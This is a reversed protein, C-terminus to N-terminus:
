SKKRKLPMTSCRLLGSLKSTEAYDVEFVEFNRNLLEEKLRHFNREIVIKDPAISFVNPFMLNKEELNVEICRDPPFLDLLEDPQKLFGNKYLIAQDAGIPQFTCDLHLINRNSDNQDVVLDLSVVTKNPFFERLFTAGAENTRDSIGVFLHDGYLIVDGGEALAGPPMYIVKESEVNQLLYNIGNIEEQRVKHKMSAVFFYDEIIFGIDRTFIQEVGPLDKPRLVEVGNQVLVQEFTKIERVIAEETPATNNQLHKRMTPNIDRAVGRNQGIGLVVSELPAMEDRLYIRM